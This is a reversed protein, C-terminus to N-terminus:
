KTETPEGKKKAAAAQTMAAAIANAAPLPIESEDPASEAAETSSDRLISLVTGLFTCIAKLPPHNEGYISSVARSYGLHYALLEKKTLAAVQTQPMAPDETLFAACLLRRTFAKTKPDAIDGTFGDLLTALDVPSGVSPANAFQLDETSIHRRDLVGYVYAGAIGPPTDSVGGPEAPEPKPNPTDVLRSFISRLEPDMGGGSTLKVGAESPKTEMTSQNALEALMSFTEEVSALMEGGGECTMLYAAVDDYTGQVIDLHEVVEDLDEFLHEIVWIKGCRIDAQTHFTEMGGFVTDINGGRISIEGAGCFVIDHSVEINTDVIVGAGLVVVHEAKLVGVRLLGPGTIILYQAVISEFEITDSVSGTDIIVAGYGFQINTSPSHSSNAAYSILPIKEGWINIRQSSKAYATGARQLLTTAKSFLSVYNPEKCETTEQTTTTM